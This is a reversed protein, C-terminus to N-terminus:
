TPTCHLSSSGGEVGLVVVVVVVVCIGVIVFYGAM